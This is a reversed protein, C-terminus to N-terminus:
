LVVEVTLEESHKKQFYLYVATVVAGIIVVGAVIAVVASIQMNSVATDAAEVYSYYRHLYENGFANYWYGYVGRKIFSMATNYADRSECYAQIAWVFPMFSMIITIVIGNQVNEEFKESM